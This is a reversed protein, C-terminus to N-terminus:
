KDSLIDLEEAARYVICEIMTGAPVMGEGEPLVALANCEHVATLLASSQNKALDVVLEAQENRYLTARQYFRRAQKKKQDKLLRAKLTLRKLESHGQMKLILPRLFMEFGTFASSPNGPLGFVICSGILGITQHAGPRMFVKAVHLSGIEELVPVVYDYDGVSVGGSSIILDCDKSAQLFAEKTAEYSDRLIPYIIYDAHLQKCLAALLYSNSNRIQGPQPKDDVDVLESGTAIIGVRVQKRVFVKSNGTSAMLGIAAADVTEGAKLVVQGASVEEGKRRINEGLKVSKYMSVFEGLEGGEQAASSEEIKLVADAGAPIAAGTMIRACEMPGLAKTPFHGAPILEVVKLEVPHQRSADEIDQARLAFGDMATNDFPAVDIDSYLDRSLVRGLSEMFPVEEEALEEPALALLQDLAEEVSLVEDQRRQFLAARKYDHDTVCM